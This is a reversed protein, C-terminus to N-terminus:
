EPELEIMSSIGTALKQKKDFLHVSNYTKFWSEDLYRGNDNRSGDFAFGGESFRRQTRSQGGQNIYYTGAVSDDFIIRDSDLEDVMRRWLIGDEGCVIGRQFGGAEVFPRRTHAVGMPISINQKQLVKSYASFDTYQGQYHEEQTGVFMFHNVFGFREGSTIKYGSFCLDVKFKSFIENIHEVRNSELEDDSDLYTIIDGSSIQFGVNRAVSPGYNSALSVIKANGVPRRLIGPCMGDMVIIWEFDKSTQNLVSNATRESIDNSTATIISIM